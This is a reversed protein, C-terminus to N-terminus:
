KSVTIVPSSRHKVNSYLVSMLNFNKWSIMFIFLRDLSADVFECPAEANEWAWAANLRSTHIAWM